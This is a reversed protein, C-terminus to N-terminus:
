EEGVRIRMQSARCHDVMGLTTLVDPDNMIGHLTLRSRRRWNPRELYTGPVNQPETELWLDELNILMARAPSKALYRLIRHLLELSTGADGFRGALQQVLRSRVAAEADYTERDILALALQDELDSGQVFGRFTPMDHTNVSAVVDEPVGAITEDSDVTLQYQVVYMRQIGRKAMQARMRDPVTGLDEGVILAAHRASELALIAFMEDAPYRVYAGERASLGAGIWYLRQLSMVHDLRLMRAHRLHERLCRIFYRHGSRRQRHPDPPHFGWDQGGTFLNDPPAGTTAGRAFIEQGRWADYGNPSVGLPLDLYLGAADTRAANAISELQLNAVWQAYLHYREDEPAYDGPQIDGDRLRDPWGTWAERRRDMVARFRAYDRVSDTASVFREFADTEANAFFRDAANRLARLKVQAVAHYDVRSAAAQTLAATV